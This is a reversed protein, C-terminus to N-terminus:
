LLIHSIKRVHVGLDYVQVAEQVTHCLPNGEVAGHRTQQAKDTAFAGKQTLCREVHVLDHRSVKPDPAHLNHKRTPYVTTEM